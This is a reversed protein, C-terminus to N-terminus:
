NSHIRHSKTEINAAIEKKLAKRCLVQQSRMKCPKWYFDSCHFRLFDRHFIKHEIIKQPGKQFVGNEFRGHRPMLLSSWLIMWRIRLFEWFILGKVWIRVSEARKKRSVAASSSFQLCRQLALRPMEADRCPFTWGRSIGESWDWFFSSMYM